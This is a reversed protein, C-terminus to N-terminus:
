CTCLAVWMRPFANSKTIILLIITSIKDMALIGIKKSLKQTKKVATEVHFSQGSVNTMLLLFEKLNQTHREAM